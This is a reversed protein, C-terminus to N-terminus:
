THCHWIRSIQLQPLVTQVSSIGILMFHHFLRMYSPLSEDGIYVRVRFLWPSKKWQGFWWSVLWWNSSWGMVQLHNFGMNPVTLGWSRDPQPVGELHKKQSIFPITFKQSLSLSKFLPSVRWWWGIFFPPWPNGPHSNPKQAATPKPSLKIYQFQLGVKKVKM